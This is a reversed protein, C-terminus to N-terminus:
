ISHKLDDTQHKMMEMNEMSAINEINEWRVGHEGMESSTRRDQASGPNHEEAHINDDKAEAMLAM